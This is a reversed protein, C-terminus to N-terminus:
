HKCWKNNCCGEIWAAKLIVFLQLTPLLCLRTKLLRGELVAVVSTIAADSQQQQQTSSWAAVTVHPLVSPEFAAAFNQM